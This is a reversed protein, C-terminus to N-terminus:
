VGFVGRSGVRTGGVATHKHKKGPVGHKVSAVSASTDYQVFQGLANRHVNNKRVCQYTGKKKRFGPKCTTTSTYSGAKLTVKQSKSKSNKVCNEGSKKTGTPCRTYQKNHLLPM